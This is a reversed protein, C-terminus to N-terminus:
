VVFVHEDLVRLVLNIVENEVHLRDHDERVDFVEVQAEPRLVISSVGRRLDDVRIAGGRM